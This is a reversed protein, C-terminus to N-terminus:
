KYPYLFDKERYSDVKKIYLDENSKAFIIKDNKSYQITNFIVNPNSEFITKLYKEISCESANSVKLNNGLNKVPLITNSYVITKNIATTHTTHPVVPVFM